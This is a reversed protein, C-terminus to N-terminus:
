WGEGPQLVFGPEFRADLWTGRQERQAQGERADCRRAEDLKVQFLQLLGQARATNETLQVCLDAALRTAFADVFLTDFAGPNTVRATYTHRLPAAATTIVRTGEVEWGACEEGHIARVLLCDAPLDFANPYGFAPADASAPLSARRAAFNWDYSRLVADRAHPYRRRCARAAQTPEDLATIEAGRGLEALALNCIAVDSIDALTPM